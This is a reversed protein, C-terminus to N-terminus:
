PSTRSPLSRYLAEPCHVWLRRSADFGRPLSTDTLVLVSFPSPHTAYRVYDIGNFTGFPEAVLPTELTGAAALPFPSALATVVILLLFAFSKGMM